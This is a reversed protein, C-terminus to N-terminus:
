RVSNRRSQGRKRWAAVVAVHGRGAGQPQVAWRSRRRAADGGHADGLHERGLTPDRLRQDIRRPILEDDARLLDASASRYGLAGGRVSSGSRVHTLAGFGSNRARLRAASLLQAPSDRPEHEQGLHLTGQAAASRGPRAVPPPRM